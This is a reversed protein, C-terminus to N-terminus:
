KRGHTNRRMKNVLDRISAEALSYKRALERFSMGSMYDTYISNNREEKTVSKLLPIYLFAGGFNELLKVTNEVGIVDNLATITEQDSNEIAKLKDM